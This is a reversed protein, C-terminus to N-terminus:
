HDMKEPLANRFEQILSDQYEKDFKGTRFMEFGEGIFRLWLENERGPVIPFFKIGNALAANMDGLADGVMLM